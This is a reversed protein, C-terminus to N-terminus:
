FLAELKFSFVGGRGIARVYTSSISLGCDLPHRIPTVRVSQASMTAGM